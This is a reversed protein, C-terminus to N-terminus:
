SHFDKTEVKWLDWFTHLNCKYLEQARLISLGFELGRFSSGWWISAIKIDKTVQPPSFDLKEVMQKWAKSIKGWIKSGLFSIHNKVLGLKVKPGWKM